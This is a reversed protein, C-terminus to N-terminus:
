MKIIEDFVRKSNNQDNYAFTKYVRNIYKNEMEFDHNIYFEIKKVVDDITVFVDGFGDEEYSFYGQTYTHSQFFTDKDFQFYIIPKKLYSFDFFTSSYDTILLSSRAFENRYDPNVIFKVKDQIIFDDKQQIINPHLIVNLIINNNRLLALLKENNILSNINKYFDSEKFETNYKRIGSGKTDLEFALNKRWTPTFLITRETGQHNTNQLLDFRPFGTLVVDDKSYFYNFKLISDYEPNTATVFLDINKDHKNLWNSLDDKTIGHQLFIFKYDWFNSLYGWRQFFSNLVYDNAHSSIIFPSMLSLLKHKVSQYSIVNPYQKKLMLYDKSFKDIIFYPVIKRDKFEKKKNNIIYDYFAEGNDGANNIRDSVLWYTKKRFARLVIAFYRYFITKIYKLQLLQQFNKLENIIIRSVKKEMVIIENCSTKIMYKGKAYYHNKLSKNIKAFKGFNINLKMLNMKTNLYIGWRDGPNIPLNFEFSYEFLNINKGLYLKKHQIEVIEGTLEHGSGNIVMVDSKNIKYPLLIRGFLNLTEDIDLISIHTNATDNILIHEDKIKLHNSSSHLDIEDGLNYKYKLCVLKELYGIYKQELIIYDSINEIIETILNNYEKLQHRKLAKSDDNFLRWQLDYMILYQIYPLVKGYKEKSLNILYLYVNKPTNLYWLISSSSKEVASDNSERFRYYYLGEALVVYKAEELLITNVVKTDESYFVNEDFKLRPILKTSFFCQAASLQSYNYDNHISVIKTKSYKYDLHHYRNKEEFLKMRVSILSINKFKLFAKLVLSFTDSSWKDDSDLFNIYKGKTLTLGLNRAHSVGKNEQYKYVINRPYLRQYNLCIEESNDSSGDNILILQINKEFNLSQNIVSLITEELYKDTNHIPIIVSFLFRNEMIEGISNLM